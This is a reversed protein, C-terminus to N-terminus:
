VKPVPCLRRFSLSINGGWRVMSKDFSENTAVALPFPLQAFCYVQQGDGDELTQAMECLMEESAAQSDLVARLRKPQDSNLEAIRDITWVM